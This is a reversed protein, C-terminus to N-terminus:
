GIPKENDFATSLTIKKMREFEEGLSVLKKRARSYADEGLLLRLPPQEMEVVKFIAAAAAEPNGAQSGNNAAFTKKTQGSSADYDGIVRQAEALSSDLFNTRFAGPEVITVKIGIHALEQSMAESFGEVAFKSANYIGFGPAGAFGAISSLNIIHGSKAKRMHPLVHRVMRLQSYVNVEMIKEIEPQSAEEVAGLFGYGANNILVDIRGYDKAILNIANSVEQENTLDLGIIRLNIEKSLSENFKKKDRTTAIVQQDKSLLYKVTALGLGQSAGTVIWVKQNKMKDTTLKTKVAIKKFESIETKIDNSQM